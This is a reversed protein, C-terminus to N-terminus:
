IEPIVMNLAHKAGVHKLVAATFFIIWIGLKNSNLTLIAGNIMERAEM